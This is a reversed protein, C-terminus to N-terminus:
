LAGAVPGGLATAAIIFPYHFTLVGHGHLREVRLGGLLGIAIWFVLGLLVGERGGTSTLSIREDIPLSLAAWALAAVGAAITAATYVYLTPSYDSSRRKMRVQDEGTRVPRCKVRGVRVWWWNYTM